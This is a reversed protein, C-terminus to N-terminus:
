EDMGNLTEIDGIALKLMMAPTAEKGPMGTMLSDPFSKKMIGNHRIFYEGEDYEIVYTLRKGGRRTYEQVPM